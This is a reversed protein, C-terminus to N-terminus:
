AGIIQDHEVKGIGIHHTMRTHQSSRDFSDLRHILTQTANSIRNLCRAPSQHDSGIMAIAFSHNIRECTARMRSM